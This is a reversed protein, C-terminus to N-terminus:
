RALGALAFSAVIGIGFFCATAVLSGPRFSGCGVLGHGSTCGAAMRTGFGVLVGGVFMAVWATPGSGILARYTDGVDLSPRAGLSIASVAAGAVVGVLFLVNSSWGLRQGLSPTSVTPQPASTDAAAAVAGAGFMEETARALAAALDTESVGEAVREARRAEPDLAGALSGSVGLPRRLLALHGLAVGSLALAGMWFPWYSV